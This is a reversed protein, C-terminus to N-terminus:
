GGVRNCLNINVHVCMGDWMYINVHVCTLMRVSTDTLVLASM